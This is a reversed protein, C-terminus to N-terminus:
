ANRLWRWASGNAIEEVTWQNDALASFVAERNDPYRLTRTHWDGALSFAAAYWADVLCPVGQILGDIATNSSHAIVAKINSWDIPPLEKTTPKGRVEIPWDAALDLARQTWEDISTGHWEYWWPSQQAILVVKGGSRWPQVDIKLERWRGGTSRTLGDHQLRNRTIRYYTGGHWKSNFYGNDIYYYDRGSKVVKLYVPLTVRDVGYFVAPGALLEDSTVIDCAQGEKRCGLSFAELMARSGSKNPNLYCHM